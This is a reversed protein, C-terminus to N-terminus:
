IKGKKKFEQLSSNIHTNPKCIKWPWEFRTLNFEFRSKINCWWKMHSKREKEKGRNQFLDMKGSFRAGMGLLNVMVVGLLVRAGAMNSFDLSFLSFLFFWAM